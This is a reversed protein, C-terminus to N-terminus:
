MDAALANYRNVRGNYDSVMVKLEGAVRNYVPVLGNYPQFEGRRNYANMQQM